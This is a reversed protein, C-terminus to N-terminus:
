PEGVKRHELVGGEWTAEIVPDIRNTLYDWVLAADARRTPRPPRSDVIESADLLRLDISRRRVHEAM